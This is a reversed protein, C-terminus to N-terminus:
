IFGSRHVSSDLAYGCALISGSAAHAVSQINVIAPINIVALTDRGGEAFSHIIPHVSGSKEWTLLANGSWSVQNTNLQQISDLDVATPRTTTSSIVTLTVRRALRGAADQAPLPHLACGLWLM